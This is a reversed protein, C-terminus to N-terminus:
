DLAALEYVQSGAGMSTDDTMAKILANGYTVNSAGTQERVDQYWGNFDELSMWADDGLSVYTEGPNSVAKAMTEVVVGDDPADAFALELNLYSTGNNSTNSPLNSHVCEVVMFRQGAAILAPADLQITHFGAQAFTVSKKAVLWGDDGEAPMAYVWCEVLEDQHYTQATVSRLLETNEATFMNAVFVEGEYSSPESFESIGLYDYQYLSDSATETRMVEFVVPSTITHDYYSLWFFGSAGAEDVIGWNMADASGGLQAYLADSGWNNKCLWAGDAPPQGSTTGSFQEKSYSDNWGVITVAHDTFVESAADYQSWTGYDFNESRRRDGPLSTEADLSIAVAGIEMLAAKIDRTANADYGLYQYGSISADYQTVAPSPLEVIGSVYWGVDDQKRLTEDISWDFRRADIGNEITSYWPTTDAAYGNYQYPAASELLLGQRAALAAEVIPFNGGALQTTYDNIDVRYLGEGAQNGGTEESRLEHAFWAIARESIDISENLGSLLPTGSLAAEEKQELTGNERAEAVLISSEIASAIAFAWCAGWPNQLKVSTALGANTLYFSSPLADGGAISLANELLTETIEDNADTNEFLVREDSMMVTNVVDASTETDDESVFLPHIEQADACSHIAAIPLFTLTAILIFAVVDRLALVVKKHFTGPMHRSSRSRDDLRLM